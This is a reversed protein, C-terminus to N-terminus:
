KKERKGFIKEENLFSIHHAMKNDFGQDRLNAELIEHYLFRKRENTSLRNGMMLFYKNPKVDQIFYADLSNDLISLLLNTGNYEIEEGEEWKVNEIIQCLQCSDIRPIYYASEKSDKSQKGRYLFGDIIKNLMEQKPM